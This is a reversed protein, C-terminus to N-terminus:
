LSFNMPVLLMEAHPLLRTNGVSGRKLSDLKERSVVTFFILVRPKRKGAHLRRRNGKGRAVFSIPSTQVCALNEKVQLLQAGCNVSSLLLSLEILSPLGNPVSIQNPIPHSSFM